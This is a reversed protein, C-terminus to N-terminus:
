GRRGKRIDEPKGASRGRPAKTSKRGKPAKTSPKGTRPKESRVKRDQAM